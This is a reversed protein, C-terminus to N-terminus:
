GFRHVHTEEKAEQLQSQDVIQPAHVPDPAPKYLRHSMMWELLYAGSPGPLARRLMVGVVIFLATNVISLAYQAVVGVSGFLLLTVVGAGLGVGIEMGGINRFTVRGTVKLTKHPDQELM